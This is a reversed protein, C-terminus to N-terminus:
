KTAVVEMKKEMMSEVIWRALQDLAYEAQERGEEVFVVTVVAELKRPKRAHINSVPTPALTPSDVTTKQKGAPSLFIFAM